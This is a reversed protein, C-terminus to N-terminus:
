FGARTDKDQEYCLQYLKSYVIKINVCMCVGM